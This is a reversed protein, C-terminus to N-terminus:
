APQWLRGLGFLGALGTGTNALGSLSGSFLPSISGPSASNFFGSIQFNNFSGGSATNGIGSIIGNTGGGGSAANFFGSVSTGVNNFGSRTLGTNTIAGFATNVNGSNWM